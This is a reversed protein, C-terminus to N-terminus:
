FIGCNGKEEVCVRSFSKEKRIVEDTIGNTTVLYEIQTRYPSKHNERDCGFEQSELKMDNPRICTRDCITLERNRNNYDIYCSHWYEVRDYYENQESCSNNIEVQKKVAIEYTKVEKDLVEQETQSVGSSGIISQISTEVGRNSRSKSSAEKYEERLKM